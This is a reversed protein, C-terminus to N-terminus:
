WAARPWVWRCAAPARADEWTMAFGRYQTEGIRGLTEGVALDRKAVAICEGVPHDLPELHPAGRM